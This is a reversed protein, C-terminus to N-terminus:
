REGGVDSGTESGSRPVEGLHKVAAHVDSTQIYRQGGRGDVRGVRIEVGARRLGDALQQASWTSYTEPWHEALRQLVAASRVRDEGVVVAAVDVLLVREAVPDGQDVVRGARARLAKAQEAVEAAQRGDVFHTRVTISSQGPPLPVGDGAVVLTGKDLGQRLKHPAAGGDIAKDGLAMRAQSETGVVLSARIHAGERVLKPLNQDTPDQTGQWLIVNVARGQNHLKRAAMFYRSTAKVGGYPRGDDGVAPCMFAQQAEDVILFIPHFGKGARALDRTVGDPYKEPDVAALRRDMERVGWELMETAAVIHDDTPGEILTTALGAFMHWDGIGKLDAIRFEVTVDLALWLVLARLGATKGQNSLGTILLHRQKLSLSAADGRLDQGWPARGTYLDATLDTDTVLPSPGIPEDLAGSDAIWLRVTRAAQPITIFLEHEHRDLNEALKRRKGQVEHTSVGSPLTVDVEVGCGAIVIPGLMAAGADGMDKIAKALASIGLDRLATVVRSPTIPAGGTDTRQDAPRLWTPAANARRGVHWLALVAMWPAALMLPGWVVTVALVLWKIAKIVAIVPDLAEGINHDVLAVAVGVFLLTGLLGALGVVLAKVLMMPVTFWDMTRRHRRDRAAEARTEWEALLVMDGVAEAARMIREYRSNTKAEWMRVALVKVGGAIYILHRGITKAATKTRDHGVVAKVARGTVVLNSRYGQYRAIAQGRQTQLRQWQEDTVLEGNLVTGASVVPLRHVTALDTGPRPSEENKM